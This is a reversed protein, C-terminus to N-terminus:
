GGREVPRDKSALPPRLKMGAGTLHVQFLSLPHAAPFPTYPTPHPAHSPLSQLTPIARTGRPQSPCASAHAQFHPLCTDGEM